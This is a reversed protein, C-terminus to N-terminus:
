RVQRGPKKHSPGFYKERFVIADVEQSKTRKSIITCRNVPCDNSIFESIGSDVM